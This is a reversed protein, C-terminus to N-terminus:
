RWVNIKRLFPGWLEERHRSFPVPVLIIPFWTLHFQCFFNNRYLHFCETQQGRFPSDKGWIKGLDFKSNKFVWAVLALMAGNGSMAAGSTSQRLFNEQSFYLITRPLSHLPLSYQVSASPIKLNELFKVELFNWFVRLKTILSSLAKMYVSKKLDM